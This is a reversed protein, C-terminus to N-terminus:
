RTEDKRAVAVPATVWGCVPCTYFTVYNGDPGSHSHFTRTRSPCNPKGAPCTRPPQEGTAKGTLMYVGTDMRSQRSASSASDFEAWVPLHQQHRHQEHDGVELSWRLWEECVAAFWDMAVRLSAPPAIEASVDILHEVAEGYGGFSVEIPDGINGTWAFATNDSFYELGPTGDCHRSDYGTIGSPTTAM